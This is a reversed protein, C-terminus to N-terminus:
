DCVISVKPMGPGFLVIPVLEENVPIEHFLLYSTRLTANQSNPYRGHITGAAPDYTMEFLRGLKPDVLQVLGDIFSKESLEGGFIPAPALAASLPVYGRCREGFHPYFTFGAKEGSRTWGLIVSLGEDIRWVM